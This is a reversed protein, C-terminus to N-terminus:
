SRGQVPVPPEVYAVRVEVQHLMREAALPTFRREMVVELSNAGKRALDLPLEFEFWHHTDIREPLGLRSAAYPVIGGGYTSVRAQEQPLERGNFRFVLRDEPCHQVMRVGLTVSRLEGDARAAELDDSLFVPVQVPSGEEMAAPLARKPFFPDPSPDRPAFVYHKSRHAYIDSDGMERLVMYEQETHPWPLYSLYLGDAGAARYNSAAARYMELTTSNHRDDYPTGGVPLYVWAGAEHAAELLWDSPPTADMLGTELIGRYPIVLDVLRESLWARVDMGVALNAEEVPHVRSALCLRQGRQEGIRDLLRRVDRVFETLIPANRWAESPKFFVRLQSDKLCDDIELGDLEYRGCVEEVVELREQRVEPRAFDACTAVREDNPDVEGIAVEPHEWKLKGVWYLRDSSPLGPDNMRLSGLVQLGKEHAREVLVRLPDHGSEIAQRVNEAARWWM